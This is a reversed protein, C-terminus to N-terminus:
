KAEFISETVMNNCLKNVAIVLDNNNRTLLNFNVRFNLYGMNMMYDLNQVYAQDQINAAALEQQYIMRLKEDDSLHYQDEVVPVEIVPIEVPAQEKVEEEVIKSGVFEILHEKEPQDEQSKYVFPQQEEQIVPEAEDVDIMKSFKENIEDIQLASYEQVDQSASLLSSVRQENSNDLPQENVESIKM